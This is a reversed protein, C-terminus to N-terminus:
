AWGDADNGDSPIRAPNEPVECGSVLFVHVMAPISVSWGLGSTRTSPRITGLPSRRVAPRIPPRAPSVPRPSPCHARPSVVRWRLGDVGGTFRDVEASHRSVAPQGDRMNGTGH